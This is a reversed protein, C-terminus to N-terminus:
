GGGEKATQGMLFIRKTGMLLFPIIRCVWSKEKHAFTELSFTFCALMFNYLSSKYFSIHGHWRSIPTFYRFLFSVNMKLFVYIIKYNEMSFAKYLKFVKLLFSFMIFLAALPSNM